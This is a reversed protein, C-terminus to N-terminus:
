ECRSALLPRVQMLQGAEVEYGTRARKLVLMFEKDERMYSHAFYRVPLVAPLREGRVVKRVHLTASVWGRRLIYDNSKASEYTGNRVTAVVVTDKCDYPLTRNELSAHPVTACAAALLAVSLTVFTRGM